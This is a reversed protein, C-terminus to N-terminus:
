RGSRAASGLDVANWPRGWSANAERSPWLAFGDHHKSVLVVYKAGSRAFIDAWQDADFMEATFRPAFDQYEFDKGYVREHFARTERRIKADNTSADPNGPKRLREWYWEAYEGKSAFAPVSYVGWHIFIGFKADGWWAPTPRADVSDWTPEYRQAHRAPRSVSPVPLAFALKRLMTRRLRSPLSRDHEVVMGGARRHAVEGAHAGHAGVLAADGSGGGDRAHRRRFGSGVYEFYAFLIGDRLYISYNRINSRRIQELVDPWVEAHHRVYDDRHEPRLKLIQGYRKM